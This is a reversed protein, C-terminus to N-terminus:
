ENLLKKANDNLVWNFVNFIERNLELSVDELNNIDIVNNQVLDIDLIFQGIEDNSKGQTNLGYKINLNNSDQVYNILQINQNIKNKGPWENVSNTINSNVLFPIVDVPSENRKFEIINIKRIGVRNYTPRECLQFFHKIKKFLNRVQDFSQYEGKGISLNLINEKITLVSQGNESKMLIQFSGEVQQFNSVNEKFRFEFGKVPEAQFRPFDSKFIEIIDEKCDKLAKFSEFYIEFVVQM